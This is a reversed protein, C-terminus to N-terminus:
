NEDNDDHPPFLKSAIDIRRRNGYKRDFEEPNDKWQIGRHVVVEAIEDLNGGHKMKCPDEKTLVRPESVRDGNQDFASLVLCGCDLYWLGIGIAAPEQAYIDERSSRLKDHYREELEAVIKKREELTLEAVKERRRVPDSFFVREWCIFDLNRALIELGAFQGPLM